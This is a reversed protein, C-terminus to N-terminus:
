RRGRFVAVSHSMPRGGNGAQLRALEIEKADLIKQITALDGRDISMGGRQLSVRQGTLAKGRAARLLVVEAQLDAVTAM